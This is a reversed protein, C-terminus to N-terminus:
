GLLYGGFQLWINVDSYLTGSAFLGFTDNANLYVINTASGSSSYDTTQNTPRAGFSSPTTTGNVSGWVDRFTNSVGSGISLFFFIYYGAVPATFLGNSNNYNNGVDFIENNFIIIGSGSTSASRFAKFVPQSPTTIRGSSDVRLREIFSGASDTGFQFQSARVAFPITGNAPATTNTWNELLIGSSGTVPTSDRISLSTNSSAQISLKGLNFVTGIAVNSNSDVRLVEVGGEAIAITDAAPFFVGTNSDGSPSISPASVSGVAVVIGGSFTSVGSSSINGTINGSVNGTINGTVNGSFGGSATVIGSINLSSASASGLSAGSVNLGGDIASITDTNGNIQIGM